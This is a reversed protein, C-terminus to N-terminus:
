GCKTAIKNTILISLNVPVEEYEVCHRASMRHAYTAEETIGLNSTAPTMYWSSSSEEPFRSPMNLPVPKLISFEINLRISKCSAKKKRKEHAKAAM